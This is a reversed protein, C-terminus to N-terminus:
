SIIKRLVTALDAFRVAEEENFSLHSTRFLCLKGNIEVEMEPFAVLEDLNKNMFLTQLKEKDQTAVHFKDSFKKYEKFDVDARVFLNVIREKITERFIYTLPFDKQLTFLGFFYYSTSTKYPTYAVVSVQLNYDASFYNDHVHPGHPKGLTKYMLFSDMEAYEAKELPFKGAIIQICENLWEQESDNWAADHSYM